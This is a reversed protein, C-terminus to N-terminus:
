SRLLCGNFFHPHSVGPVGGMCSRDPLNRRAQNIKAKEAAIQVLEDTVLCVKFVIWVLGTVPKAQVYVIDALILDISGPAHKFFAHDRRNFRPNVDTCIM